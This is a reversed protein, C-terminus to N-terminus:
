RESHMRRSAKRDYSSKPNRAGKWTMRKSPLRQVASVNSLPIFGGSILQNYIQTANFRPFGKKLRYIEETCLNPELQARTMGPEVPTIGDIGFRSYLPLSMKQLMRYSIKKVSGDPFHPDSTIRKYYVLGQATPISIPM